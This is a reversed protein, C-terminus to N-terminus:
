CINSCVYMGAQQSGAQLALSCAVCWRGPHQQSSDPERRRAKDKVASCCLPAKCSKRVARHEHRGHYSPYPLKAVPVVAEDEVLKADEM